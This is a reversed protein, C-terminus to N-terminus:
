FAEEEYNQDLSDFKLTMHFAGGPRPSRSKGAHPQLHKVIRRGALPLVEDCVDCRFDHLEVKANKLEKWIPNKAGERQRLHFTFGGGSGHDPVMHSLVNAGTLALNTHCSTDAQQIPQYDQCTIRIPVLNAKEFIEWDTLSRSEEIVKTEEKKEM